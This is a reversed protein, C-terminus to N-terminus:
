DAKPRSAILEESRAKIFEDWPVLPVDEAFEALLEVGAQAVALPFSFQGLVNTDFCPECVAANTFMVVRHTAIPPRSKIWLITGKPKIPAQGYLGIPVLLKAKQWMESGPEKLEM